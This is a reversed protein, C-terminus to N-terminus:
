AAVSFVERVAKSNCSEQERDGMKLGQRWNQIDTTLIYKGFTSEEKCNEHYFTKGAQLNFVNFMLFM